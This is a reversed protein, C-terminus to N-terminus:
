YYLWFHIIYYNTFCLNHSGESKKLLNYMTKETKELQKIWLKIRAKCKMNKETFCYYVNKFNIPCIRMVPCEEIELKAM